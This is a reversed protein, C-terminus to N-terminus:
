ASIRMNEDHAWDAFAMEADLEDQLREVDRWICESTHEAGEEAYAYAADQLRQIKRQLTRIRSM